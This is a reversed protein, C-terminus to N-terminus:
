WGEDQSCESTWGGARKSYRKVVSKTCAGLMLRGTEVLALSCPRAGVVESVDLARAFVFRSKQCARFSSGAKTAQRISNTRSKAAVPMM